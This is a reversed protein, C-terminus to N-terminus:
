LTSKPFYAIFNMGNAVNVGFATDDLFNQTSNEIRGQYWRPSSLFPVCYKGISLKTKKALITVGPWFHRDRNWLMTYVNFPVVIILIYDSNTIQVVLTPQESGLIRLLELSPIVLYPSM